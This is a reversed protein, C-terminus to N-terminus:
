EASMTSNRGQAEMGGSFTKLKKNAVRSLNTVEIAQLIRKKRENRDRIENLLCMYDLFENLTLNPYLGFEQPLYGIIKRIEYIDRRIDFGDIKIEGEDFGMVTALIRM